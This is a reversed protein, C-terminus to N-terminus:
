FIRVILFVKLLLKISWIRVQINDPQSDTPNYNLRLDEMAERFSEPDDFNQISRGIKQLLQVAHEQFRLSEQLFFMRIITIFLSTACMPVRNGSFFVISNFRFFKEMVNMPISVLWNTLRLPEIYVRTESNHWELTLFNKLMVTKTGFTVARIKFKSIYFDRFANSRTGKRTSCYM